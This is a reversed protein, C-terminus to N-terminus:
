PSGGMRDVLVDPAIGLEAFDRLLEDRDAPFERARIKEKEAPSLSTRRLIDEIYERSVKM